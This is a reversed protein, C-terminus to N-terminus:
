GEVEAAAAKELIPRWAPEVPLGFDERLVQELGAADLTRREEPQSPRRITYRANQLAFLGEPATRAVMLVQRFFSDPHTATYWNAPEYDVDNQVESSLIYLPMWTEGILAEMRKGGPVAALRFTMHRTAQPEKMDMRLPASSVCGGFGVDALWPVGDVTVRLGMHTRPRLPADEPSMWRVRAILSEVDFGIAVLARKFLSNQEFCYGGRRGHILKADVAEPALDVGRGLMVDIAEFPIAAPHREHLARLTELKPERPGSYGIRACYADLDISPHSSTSM